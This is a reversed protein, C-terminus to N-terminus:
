ETERVKESGFGVEREREREREREEKNHPSLLLRRHKVSHRHWVNFKQNAAKEQSRGCAPLVEFLLSFSALAKALIQNMCNLGQCRHLMYKALLSETLRQIRRHFPDTNRKRQASDQPSPNCDREKSPKRRIFHIEASRCLLADSTVSGVDSIPGWM